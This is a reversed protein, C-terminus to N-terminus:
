GCSAAGLRELLRRRAEDRQGAAVLARLDPRLARQWAGASPAAGRARLEARVEGAIAALGAYDETLHRELEERLARALAPCRGGTAVAVLLDGRRVVAPLIFDCRPPDDAANVWVGRARGEAAVAASVGADGTAVFVLQYGALDGERYRRPVHQLQGAAALADLAPTLRPSVATVSADAALLGAVKREAVLGGGVVLVRRATLDLVIPYYAM